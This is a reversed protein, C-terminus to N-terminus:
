CRFAAACRSAAVRPWTNSAVISCRARCTTSISMSAKPVPTGFSCPSTPRPDISVQTSDWIKSLNGSRAKGAPLVSSARVSIRAIQGAISGVSGAAASVVVTEGAKPQAVDMIGFYAALGNGSVVGLALGPDSGADLRRYKRAGAWAKADRPWVQHPDIIAEECWDMLGTVMDGKVFSPIPQNSSSRSGAEACPSGSSFPLHRERVTSMWGNVCLQRMPSPFRLVAASSRGHRYLYALKDALHADGM